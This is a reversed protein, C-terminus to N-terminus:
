QWERAKLPRQNGSTNEIMRNLLSEPVGDRIIAARIPSRDQATLSLLRYFGHLSVHSWDYQANAFALYPFERPILANTLDCRNDRQRSFTVRPLDYGERGLVKAMSTAVLTVEQLTGGFLAQTLSVDEAWNDKPADVGFYSKAGSPLVLRRDTRLRYYTDDSLFSSTTLTGRSLSIFRSSGRGKPSHAAVSVSFYPLNDPMDESLYGVFCHVGSREDVAIPNSLTSLDIDKGLVFGLAPPAPPTAAKRSITM